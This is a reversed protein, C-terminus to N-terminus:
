LPCMSLFWPPPPLLPPLHTQSPHPLHLCSYNFLLLIIKKIKFIICSLFYRDMLKRIFIMSIYPRLFLGVPTTFQVFQKQFKELDLVTRFYFAVGDFSCCPASAVDSFALVPKDTRLTCPCM